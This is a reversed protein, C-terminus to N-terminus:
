YCVLDGVKEVTKLFGAITDAVLQADTLDLTEICTHMYKQPISLLLVPIGSNAIQIAAADTGTREPHINIHYKKETEDMYKLFASLLTPHINPGKAVVIGEGVDFADNSGDPTKGQTVDIAIAFDPNISYAACGGGRLGVEEQVCAAVYLDFPLEVDKLQELVDIIAAVGARDDQAKSSIQNGLMHITRNKITVTDGVRVLKKIEETTYGTDIYLHDFDVPKDKEAGKLIHPPKAGIVGFVEERGHIVVEQALLTRVDVGAVEQFYVFGNEGVENVILGVEDIHAEVMVKGRSSKSKRVGIVSGLPDTYVEDCFPVFLKKIEEAVRQEHGSVGCLDSFFAINDSISM